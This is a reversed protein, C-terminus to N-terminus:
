SRRQLERRSSSELVRVLLSIQEGIIEIVDDLALLGQLVGRADTVPVRRIGARRMAALTDLLSDAECATVPGSSMVDEVCLTSVDIDKAVVATVIDRDTLLGVPFRGDPTQDVVVLCGVHHERMLRAAENLVLKREAVVVTRTCLDGASLPQNM